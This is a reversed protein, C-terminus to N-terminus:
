PSIYIYYIYLDPLVQLLQSIYILICFDYLSHSVGRFVLMVISFCGNSFADGVYQFITIKWDAMNTFEPTYKAVM